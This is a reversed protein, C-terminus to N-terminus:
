FPRREQSLRAAAFRHTARMGDNGGGRRGAIGAAAPEVDCNTGRGAAATDGRHRHSCDAARGGASLHLHPLLLLLGPFRGLCFARVAPPGQSLAGPGAPHAHVGADPDVRARKRLAARESVQARDTPSPQNLTAAPFEANIQDIVENIVALREESAPLYVTTAQGSYLDMLVM